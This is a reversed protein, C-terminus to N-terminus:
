AHGATRIELRASESRAPWRPTVSRGQVTQELTKESKAVTVIDHSWVPAGPSATIEMPGAYSVEPAFLGGDGFAAANWRYEAILVGGTVFHYQKEFMPVGAASARFIARVGRETGEVTLKLRSDAVSWVPDYEGRAYGAEDTDPALARERILVRPELDLPPLM